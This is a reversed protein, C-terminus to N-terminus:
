HCSRMPCPGFVGVPGTFHIRHFVPQDGRLCGDELVREEWAGDWLPILRWSETTAEIAATLTGYRVSGGPHMNSLMLRADTCFWFSM